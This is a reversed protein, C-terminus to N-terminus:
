SGPLMVDPKESLRITSPLPYPVSWEANAIRVVLRKPELRWALGLWEDHVRAWGEDDTVSREGMFTFAPTLTAGRVPAGDHDVVQVVTGCAPLLLCLAVPTARMKM